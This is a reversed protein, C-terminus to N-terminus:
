IIPLQSPTHYYLTLNALAGVSKTFALSTKRGMQVEGALATGPTISAWLLHKVSQKLFVERVCHLSYLCSSGRHSNCHNLLSTTFTMSQLLPLKFISRLFFSCLQTVLQILCNLALSSCLPSPPSSLGM